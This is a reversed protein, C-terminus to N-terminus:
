SPNLRVSRGGSEGEAGCAPVFVTVAVTDPMVAIVKVAVPVAAASGSPM